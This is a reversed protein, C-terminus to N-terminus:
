TITRTMMTFQFHFPTLYTDKGMLRDVRKLVYFKVSCDEGKDFPISPILFLVM